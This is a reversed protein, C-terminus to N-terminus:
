INTNVYYILNDFKYEFEYDQLTGDSKIYKLTPFKKINAYVCLYDNKDELNEANVAGFNFINVNSMALDIFLDSSKVCHKCWPAYFIIFGKKESFYENNIYLVKDKYLFDSLKLEPINLESSYIDQYFSKHQNNNIMEINTDSKTILQSENSNVNMTSNNKKYKKIKKNAM